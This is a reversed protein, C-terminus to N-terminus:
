NLYKKIEKVTINAEKAAEEVTIKGKKILSILTRIQTEYRIDAFVTLEDFNENKKNM